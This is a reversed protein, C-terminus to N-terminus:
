LSCNLFWRLFILWFYFTLTIENVDNFNGLVASICYIGHSFNVQVRMSKLVSDSVDWSCVLLCNVHAGCMMVEDAFV